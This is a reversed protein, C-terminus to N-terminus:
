VCRDKRCIVKLRSSIRRVMHGIRLLKVRQMMRKSSEQRRIPYRTSFAGIKAKFAIFRLTLATVCMVFMFEIVTEVLMNFFNIVSM